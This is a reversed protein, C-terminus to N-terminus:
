RDAMDDGHQYRHEYMYLAPAGPTATPSDLCSGDRARDRIQDRDPLTTVTASPTATPCDLCSGDRARDRDQLTSTSGAPSASGNGGTAALAVGGALAATLPVAALLVARRKIPKM